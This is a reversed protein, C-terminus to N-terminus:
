EGRQRREAARRKLDAWFQPTAEVPEGTDAIRRVLFSELEDDSSFTLHAPGGYDEAEEAAEDRLLSQIYEEVTAHGARSARAELKAKVDEPLDISLRTM